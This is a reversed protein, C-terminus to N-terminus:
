GHLWLGFAVGALVLLCISLAPLPVPGGSVTYAAVLCILALFLPGAGLPLDPNM